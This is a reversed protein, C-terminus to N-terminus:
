PPLSHRFIQQQHLFQLTIYVVYIEFFYNKANWIEQVDEVRWSAVLEVHPCTHLTERNVVIPMTVDYM